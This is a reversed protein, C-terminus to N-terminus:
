WEEVLNKKGLIGRFSCDSEIFSKFYEDSSIADGVSEVNINEKFAYDMIVEVISSEPGNGDREETKVKNIHELIDRVVFPYEKEEIFRASDSAGGIMNDNGEFSM